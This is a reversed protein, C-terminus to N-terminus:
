SVRIYCCFAPPQFVNRLCRVEKSRILAWAYNFKATPNPRAKMCEKMYIEEFRDLEASLNVDALDEDLEGRRVATSSSPQGASPPPPASVSSSASAFPPPPPASNHISPPPPPTPRSMISVCQSQQHSPICCRHLATTYFFVSPSLPSSLFNVSIPSLKAKFLTATRAPPTSTHTHTHRPHIVRYDTCIDHMTTRVCRQVAVKCTSVFRCCRVAIKRKSFFTADTSECEATLNGHEM